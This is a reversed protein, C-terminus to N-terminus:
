KPKIKIVEKRIEAIDLKTKMMELRLEKKTDKIESKIEMLLEMTKNNSSNKEPNFMKDMAAIANEIKKESAKYKQEVNFAIHMIEETEREWENKHKSGAFTCQQIYKHSSKKKNWKIWKLWMISDVELIISAMEKKDAVDMADKVNQFVEGMLAIILNLMILTLLLTAIVYVFTQLNTDTSNNFQGYALSYINVVCEGFSYVSQRDAYYALCIAIIITFFILLFPGLAKMVEACMRILYRTPQFIRIYGILRYWCMINAAALIWNQSTIGANQFVAIPYVYLLLIRLLDFINFISLFYSRLRMKMQAIEYLLFLSNLVLIIVLTTPIDRYVTQFVITTVLALYVLSQITLGLMIQNWKYLLIAKVLESKFVDANHCNKLSKIFSISEPSGRSLDMKLLSQRFEIEVDLLEENENLTVLFNNSDIKPNDSLIIIPPTRAFRGFKPLDQSTVLPFAANYLTHLSRLSAQNLIKLIEGLYEFISNNQEYLEKPIRKILIEACLKSRRNLAITLPTEGTESGLFKAGQAIASKLLKPYNMYSIVHLININSPLLVCRLCDDVLSKHNGNLLRNIQALFLYSYKYPIVTASAGISLPSRIFRLKNQTSIVIWQNNQSVALSFIKDHVYLDGLVQKDPLSWIKILKNEHQTFIYQSDGSLCIKNINEQGSKLFCEFHRSKMNWISIRGDRGGCLLKNKNDTVVLCSIESNHETFVDSSTGKKINWLRISADNSGSIAYKSNRIVVCNVMSEHGKLIYIEEYKQLDWVRITHDMSGSVAKKDDSTVAVSRISEQHGKMSEIVNFTVLDWVKLLEDVGGSICRNDNTFAVCYVEATHGQLKGICDNAEFSWILVNHDHSASAIFKSDQSIDINNIERKHGSLVKEFPHESLKHLRVNCDNGGSAIYKGSRSVYVSNVISSHAILNIEEFLGSTSAITIRGDYRGYIAYKGDSTISITKISENCEGIVM